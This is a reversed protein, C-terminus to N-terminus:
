GRRLKKWGRGQDLWSTGEEEEEEKAGEQGKEEKLPPLTEHM